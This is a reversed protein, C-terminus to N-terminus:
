EYLEVLLCLVEMLQQQELVPRLIFTISFISTYPQALRNGYGETREREVGKEWMQSKQCFIKTKVDVKQRISAHM